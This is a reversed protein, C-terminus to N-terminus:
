KFRKSTCTRNSHWLLILMSKEAMTTYDPYMQDSTRPIRGLILRNALPLRFIPQRHLILNDYKAWLGVESIGLCLCFMFVLYFCLRFQHPGWSLDYYFCLHCGPLTLITVSFTLSTNKLEFPLFGNIKYHLLITSWQKMFHFLEHSM